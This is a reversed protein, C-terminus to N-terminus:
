KFIEGTIGSEKNIKDVENKIDDEKWDPHQMKVKTYNSIAKAQDLNRITESVEKTDTMISDEIEISTDQEDYMQNFGNSSKDFRQMQLLIQRIAPIWYRSKKNRTLQSKNERLKLATGSEARGEIGLGFSQPSYGCQNIIQYFLQECTKAHEDVRIDFQVQEIPKIGGEGGMKWSSLDLKVFAKRFKNFKNLFQVTGGTKNKAKELLEEDILLQALGLEIDRIWSTWAFDLSDLMTISSNYDNIGVYAGPILKNPRMNPIYACGLGDINNHKVPELNLNETEAIESFDIIKGVKDDTGKHLQYEIILSTGERRRNEFLRYVIGSETTKVVRFCLVEWLRGRWFVPFFQSPTLVSILPIKELSPEIDIKLLCGSLAASLEAGELLINDFGNVDIFSKIRKGSKNKEDYKFRPSEAFLLNSSTAAIDGALPVHVISARDEQEMRAWFKEQATENGLAKVTYYELLNAPDGSYWSEWEDFKNFWYSYDSPPFKSTPELFM